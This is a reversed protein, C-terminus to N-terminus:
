PWEFRNPSWIGVRDGQRVGLAILGRAIRGTLNHLERFTCRFHQHRVVLAEADPFRDATEQLSRGITSRLLPVESSGVAVSLRGSEATGRFVPPPNAAPLTQEIM